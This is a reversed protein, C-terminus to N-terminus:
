RIEKKYMLLEDEQGICKFGVSEFLKISSINEEEISVEIEKYDFRKLVEILSHKAYGKNQYLPDICISLSLKDDYKEIHIGGILKEELFVKYYYVNETKTVYDFYNDSISIFKKISDINHLKIVENLDKDNEKLSLLNVNKYKDEILVKRLEIAEFIESGDLKEITSDNYYELGLKEMVRRSRYNAKACIGYLERVKHTKQIHKLIGKLAELVLGKGWMDKRINYGVEWVDSDPHYCIGGSGILENTEKLVFGGDYNNPNDDDRTELWKKVDLENTYLPYFMYKNVDKDGCWKFAAKYDEPVLPRIMLRETEIYFKM